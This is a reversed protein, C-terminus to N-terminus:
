QQIINFLNQNAGNASFFNLGGTNTEFWFDVQIEVSAVLGKQQKKVLSKSQFMQRFMKRFTM